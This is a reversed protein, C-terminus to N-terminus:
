RTAPPSMLVLPTKRGPQLWVVWCLARLMWSSCVEVPEQVSAGDPLEVPYAYRTPASPSEIVTNVQVSGDKQVVPVTLSGNNNDYSVM